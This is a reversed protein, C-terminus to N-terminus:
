YYYDITVTETATDNRVTNTNGVRVYVRDSQVIPFGVVGGISGSFTREEPRAGITQQGSYQIDGYGGELTDYSVQVWATNTTSSTLKVYLFGAFKLPFIWETYSSANQSVTEDALVAHKQFYVTNSLDDVQKQLNSIQTYAPIYLAIAEVLSVALIICVIGLAIAVKRGAVKKKNDEPESM